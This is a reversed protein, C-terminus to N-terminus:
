LPSELFRAALAGGDDASAIWAVSSYKRFWTLQRKAYHWIANRLQEVMEAETLNGRLHRTIYRYELGFDDLTKAPVGRDLLRRVEDVMGEEFRRALREAIRRKLTEPPPSIGMVLFRYPLARRRRWSAMTGGLHILIEIARIVRRPNKMEIHEPAGPDLSILRSALEAAPLAELEARLAGDPPVPPILLGETLARIYLGTGGVVIPLRGRSVIDDLAALALAQYQALTFSEGPEVVDLMWHLVGESSIPVLSFTREGTEVDRRRDALPEGSVKGTGIDMGRYVQRSDASIVEGRFQRALKVGFDSKGSANPGAVAIVPARPVESM